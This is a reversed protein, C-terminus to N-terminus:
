VVLATFVPFTNLIHRSSLPKKKPAPPICSKRPSNPPTIMLTKELLEVCATDSDGSHVQDHNTMKLNLEITHSEIETLLTTASMKTFFHSLILFDNIFSMQTCFLEFIQEFIVM